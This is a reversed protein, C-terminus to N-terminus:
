PRGSSLSPRSCKEFRSCVGPNGAIQVTQARLNVLRLSRDLRQLYKNLDVCPFPGLQGLTELTMQIGILIVKRLSKLFCGFLMRLGQSVLRLGQTIEFALLIQGPLSHVGLLRPLKSLQFPGLSQVLLIGPLGHDPPVLCLNVSVALADKQIAIGAGGVRLLSHILKIHSGRLRPGLEGLLLSASVRKLPFQSENLPYVPSGKLPQNRNKDPGSHPDQNIKEVVVLKDIM